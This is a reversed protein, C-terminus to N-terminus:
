NGGRGELVRMFSARAALEDAELELAREHYADYIMQQADDADVQEAVLLAPAVDHDRGHYSVEASPPAGSDADAGACVDDVHPEPDTSVPADNEIGKLAKHNVATDGIIDVDMAQLTQTPQSNCASAYSGDPAATTCTEELIPGDDDEKARLIPYADRHRKVYLRYELLSLRKPEDQSDLM